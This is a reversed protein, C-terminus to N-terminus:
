KGISDVPGSAFRIAGDKTKECLFKTDDIIIEKNIPIQIGDKSICNVVDIKGSSSCTKNFRHNDIWWSDAAHHKGKSDICEIQFNKGSDTGKHFGHMVVTGNDYKECKFIYGDIEKSEGINIQQDNGAFCAVLKYQGGAECEYLFSKERWQEGRKHEGCKANVQVAKQMVIQGDSNKTCKWEYNGDIASSNISMVTGSPIKCGTVEVAWSTGDDTMSCRMVFAGKEVWTEGDKYNNGNHICGYLYSIPNILFFLILLISAM